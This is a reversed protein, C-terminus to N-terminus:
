IGSDSLQNSSDSLQRVQLLGATIVSIEKPKECNSLIHSLAYETHDSKDTGLLM